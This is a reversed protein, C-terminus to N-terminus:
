GSDFRPSVLRASPIAAEVAISPAVNPRTVSSSNIGTKMGNRILKPGASRNQIMVSPKTAIDTASGVLKRAPSAATAIPMMMAPTPKPPGVM